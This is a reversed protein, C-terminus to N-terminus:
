KRNFYEFLKEFFGKNELSIIPKQPQIKKNNADFKLASDCSDKKGEDIISMENIFSFEPGFSLLNNSLVRSGNGTFFLSLDSNFLNNKILPCNLFLLEIIEELRSNIIKKLLENDKTNNKSFKIKKAEAKRYDINLVKSIDKTIHDGGIHTNNLYLLKDDKFITLSSKKLGIDIFSSYGSIGIKNILGLSKIYSTCFINKLLIHKKIFLSKISDCTKKNIMVIKLEVNAKSVEQSINDTYEISKNDFIINPKMIHLIDQDQNIKKVVQESENILYNIDENTVIKKDYNKQISFDLSHISSSDTMLLVENLHQGIDKEAKMILNFIPHNEIFNENRTFDIKEEYFLSQNLILKDYIALRIHTSGFELISIPSTINTM